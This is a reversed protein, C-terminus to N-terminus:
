ATSSEHIWGRVRGFVESASYRVESREAAADAEDLKQEVSDTLKEFEEADPLKLTKLMIADDSAYIVLKDGTGISLTRRISIPLSIQGKSSATIVQANMDGNERVIM